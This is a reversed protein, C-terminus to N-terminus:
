KMSDEKDLKRLLGESSGHYTVPDKLSSLEQNLFESIKGRAYELHKNPVYTSSAKSKLMAYIWGKIYADLSIVPEYGLSKMFGLNVSKGDELVVGSYYPLRDILECFENSIRWDPQPSTKQERLKKLESM